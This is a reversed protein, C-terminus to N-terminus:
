TERWVARGTEVAVEAHVPQARALAFGERLAPWWGVGVGVISDRAEFHQGATDAHEAQASEGVEFEAAVVLGRPLGDVSRQPLERVGIRHHEVQAAVAAARRGHDAVEGAGEDGAARVDEVGEVAAGARLAFRGRVPVVCRPRRPRQIHADICARSRFLTTYPFLTATRTSRPPRRVM